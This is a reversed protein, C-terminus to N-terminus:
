WLCAPESKLTDVRQEGSVVVSSSKPTPTQLTNSKVLATAPFGLKLATVRFEIAIIHHM